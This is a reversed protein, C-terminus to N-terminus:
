LAFWQERRATKHYNNVDKFM